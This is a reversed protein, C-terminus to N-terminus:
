PPNSRLRVDPIVSLRHRQRDLGQADALAELGQAGENSDYRADLSASAANAVECCIGLRRFVCLKTTPDYRTYSPPLTKSNTESM